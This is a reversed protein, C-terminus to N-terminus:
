GSDLRRGFISVVGSCWIERHTVAHMRALLGHEIKVVGFYPLVRRMRIRPVGHIMRSDLPGVHVANLVHKANEQRCM